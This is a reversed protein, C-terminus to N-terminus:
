VALIKLILIAFKFPKDCVLVTRIKLGLIAIKFHKEFVLVPWGNLKLVSLKPFTFVALPYKLFHFGLTKWSFCYDINTTQSSKINDKNWHFSFSMFFCDFSWHLSSFHLKSDFVITEFDTHNFVSKLHLTIM